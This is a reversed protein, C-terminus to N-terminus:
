FFDANTRVIERARTWSELVRQHALRVAAANGEQASLLIRAETLAEVLRRAQPTPAAEALPASRITLAARAAGPATSDQVPVALQRLLRPLAAAEAEGLDALAREAAQDIAGDLGGLARYAAFTLRTEGDVIERAEFLRQLT